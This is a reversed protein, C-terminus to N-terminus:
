FFLFFNNTNRIVTIAIGTAIFDDIKAAGVGPDFNGLLMGAGNQGSWESSALSVKEVGNAYGKVIGDRIELKMTVPNGPWAETFTDVTTRDDLIWAGSAFDYTFEFGDTSPTGTPLRGLLGPFVFTGGATFIGEVDMEDSGLDNDLRFRNGSANNNDQAGNSQIVAAGALATWGTGANPGTPAHATLSTGNTDTFTDGATAM